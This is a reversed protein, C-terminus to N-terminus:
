PQPEAPAPERVPEPEPISEPLPAEAPEVQIIRKPRGMNM